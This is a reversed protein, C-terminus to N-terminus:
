CSRLEIWFRSGKGEASEVGVAGGMREVARRVVALGIGTGPFQEPRHLREFIKFIRAQYEPAIGIGNDEVWVRVRDARRESRVRVRPGVGAPIFKLANSVLNGLAQCLLFPHGVARSLPKEVVVEAKCEAIPGAAQDMVQDAVDDLDVPELTIEMRSLHSYSLLDQIQRDMRQSGDLIRRAYDRGTEDLPQGAYEESLAQSFGAMARLPARLDHAITYALAGLERLAEELQATREAVCRGLGENLRRIEEEGRKRELFQGVQAGVGSLLRLLDEDPERIETGFFEFVGLVDGGLTVPFAIAAHLGARGAVSARAFHPDSSFCPFWAAAGVSWVHGPLGEGRACTAQRTVGEFEAADVLPIHWTELCRLVDARADVLWLAGAKWRLCDGLARLLRLAAEPVTAAGALVETVAHEAANRREARKRATVDRGIGSFGIVEGSESRIPSLTLSVAFREGGKRLRFTEYSGVQEGRRVRELLLRTDVVLDPPVLTFISRGTMERAAYGYLREAAPNWSFVVGELTTGIIADESSEVIAALQRRAEEAWMRETIDTLVIVSGRGAETSLPRASVYLTFFKQDARAYLAEAGKVSKGAALLDILTPYATGPGWPANGRAQLPFTSPFRKGGLAGGALRTAALSALIIRGKEDCVVIAESAQLFVQRTLRSSALIAQARAEASRDSVVLCVARKGGLRLPRLSCAAPRPPGGGTKVRCPASAPGQRGRRLLDEFGPRDSPAVFAAFPLGLVEEAPKGVLEALGRNCYLVRGEPNLLATGQDLQDVVVRYFRRGEKGGILPPPRFAKGKFRM